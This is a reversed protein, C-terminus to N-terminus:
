MFAKKRQKHSTLRTVRVGFQEDIVVAEGEAILRGNAYIELPEGVLKELEVISGISLNLVDALPLRRRGLEVTIELEVDALMDLNGAGGGQATPEGLDPFSAPNVNASPRAAPGGGASGSEGMPQQSAAAAGGAGVEPLPAIVLHGDQHPNSAFRFSIRTLTEPLAATPLASGDAVLEFTAAPLTVDHGSLHSRVAGHAQALVEQLLDAAGADDPTMAEGIMPESILPVLSPALMVVFPPAEGEPTGVALLYGEENAQLADLAMPTPAEAVIEEDDGLLTELFGNLAQQAEDLATNLMTQTM